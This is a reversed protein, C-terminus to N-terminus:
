ERNSEYILAEYLLDVIYNSPELKYKKIVREIFDDSYDLSLYKGVFEKKNGINNLFNNTYENDLILLKTRGIWKKFSLLIEETSKVYNFSDKDYNVMNKVDNNKIAQEELRYDFRDILNLGKLKIASLQVLNGKEPSIAEPILEVIIYQTNKM